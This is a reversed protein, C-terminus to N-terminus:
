GDLYGRRYMQLTRVASYQKQARYIGFCFFGGAITASGFNFRRAAQAGRTRRLYRVIAIRGAISAGALGLLAGSAAYIPGYSIEELASIEEEVGCSDISCGARRFSDWHKAVGEVHAAGIAAVIRSDRPAAASAHYLSHSLYFDREEAVPEMARGFSIFKPNNLLADIIRRALSAARAFDNASMNPTLVLLELELCELALGPVGENQRVARVLDRLGGPTVVASLTRGFTISQRRDTLVIMAGAEEATAAAAAQEAGLRTGVLAELGLM